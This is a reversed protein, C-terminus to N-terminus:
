GFSFHYTSTIVATLNNVLILPINLFCITFLEITESISSITSTVQKVPLVNKKNGNSETKLNEVEKEDVEEWNNSMTANGNAAQMDYFM